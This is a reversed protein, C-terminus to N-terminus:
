HQYFHLYGIGVRMHRLVEDPLSTAVALGLLAHALALPYINRYRRFVATLWFTLLFTASVLLINPVHAAAFLLASALWARRSNGLLEELNVFFFSQLIFQQVVTWLVYLFSHLVPRPAWLVHATGLMSAVSMMLAAVVASLPVVWLSERFGSAGVGLERPSRRQALTVGIIWAAAAASWAQQAGRETWLAAELLGYAAALQAWRWM